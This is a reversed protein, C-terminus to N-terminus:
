YLLYSIKSTATKKRAKENRAKVRTAINGSDFHNDSTTDTPSINHIENSSSECDNSLNNNIIISNIDISQSESIESSNDTDIIDQDLTRVLTSSTDDMIDIPINLDTSRRTEIRPQQALSGLLPQQTRSVSQQVLPVSLSQHQNPVVQSNTLQNNSIAINDINISSTANNRPSFINLIGFQESLPLDAPENSRQSSGTQLSERSCITELQSMTINHHHAHNDYSYDRNSNEVNEVHQDRYSSKGDNYVCMLHSVTDMLFPM